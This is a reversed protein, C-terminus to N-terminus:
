LLSSLIFTIFFELSHLQEFVSFFFLLAQHSPLFVSFLFNNWISSFTPWRQDRNESTIPTTVFTKKHCWFLPYFDFGLPKAQLFFPNKCSQITLSYYNESMQCMFCIELILFLWMQPGNDTKVDSSLIKKTTSPQWQSTSSPNLWSNLHKKMCQGCAFWATCQHWYIEVVDLFKSLKGGILDWFVWVRAPQTFLAFAVETCHRGGLDCSLITKWLRQSDFLHIFYNSATAPILGM